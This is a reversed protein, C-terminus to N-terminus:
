HADAWSAGIGLDVVLPVRLPYASEMAAKVEVALADVEAEAVELVLEDHVTLLIRADDSRPSLLEQVRLMALKMIDAGSGQIPTNQAVRQAAQRRQYSKADIDPIPRRRDLITRAYGNTRATVILQDMFQRVGAFREFYTEIYKRAEERPIDLTRSLGFGSQGYALGYNVAKAVRRQDPGVEAIPIAFIEAATQTHIDVDAHFADLLGPDESLHALIRLEIQSYDASLLRCGPAAVFARRIQRGLERRIPINQLNPDQSSLRGTAAVAQNFSTHLRGTAPNVLPPLADLYTGKLKVLERHELIPAIIEHADVLSELVEHDTSYGTKTKKMKDSTLGLKDFLLASLQKPSGVNVHEGALEFIRRELEAIKAGTEDSLRRLYDVDLCVGVDEIDALLFALPQELDTLLERGGAADLQRGLEDAAALVAGAAVGAYAAADEVAVAEFGVRKKGKGGGGRPPLEVGGYRKAIRPLEPAAGLLYAALMTDCEVRSLEIGIRGLLRRAAKADHCVVALEPERLLPALAEAVQEAALQPPVSLYRHALPIYAPARDPVALAIGVAVARDARAEDAEVGLAVRGAARAATVLEALAEPRDIVVPAGDILRTAPASEAAAVSSSAETRVPALSALLAQFELEECLRALESGDWPQPVLDDLEVGVQVDTKLTVLERSLELRRLQEPDSFREKQKGKLEDVHELLGDISGYTTLLKAASVKGIGAVGPVNDSTDGVLALWDRVQDPGVGFKETVRSIDYTIQRLSDVVTVQPDVLQMLDKDGSYIVVDWDRARARTTLTAIVDDAEVGPITLVPWAFARTLPQFYPLQAVLDEPTEARTAKYEQDLRDRFTPGPADFVVAIREPKVDQHLRLLMRAFVYLAGTPMGKSSTLRVGRGGPGALGYFARFIYGHGDLIHLREM